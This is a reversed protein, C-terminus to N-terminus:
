EHGQLEKLIQTRNKNPTLDDNLVIPFKYQFFEKNSQICKKITLIRPTTVLSKSLEIYEYDPHSSSYKKCDPCNEVGIIIM